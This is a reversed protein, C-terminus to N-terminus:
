WLIEVTYQDYSYAIAASLAARQTAKSALAKSGIAVLLKWTAENKTEM